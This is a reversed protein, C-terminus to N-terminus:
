RQSQPAAEAGIANSEQNTRIFIVYDEPCLNTEKVRRRGILDKRIVLVLERLARTREEPTIQDKHEPLTKILFEQGKKIM